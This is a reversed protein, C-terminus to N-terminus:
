VPSPLPLVVAAKPRSLIDLFQNRYLGGGRLEHEGAAAQQGERVEGVQDGFHAGDFVVEVFAEQGALADFVLQDSPSPPFRIMSM